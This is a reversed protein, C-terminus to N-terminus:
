VPRGDVNRGEPLPAPAPPDYPGNDYKSEDDSSDSASSM